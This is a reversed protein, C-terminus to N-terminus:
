ADLWILDDIQKCSIRSNEVNKWVVTGHVTKSALLQMSQEVIRNQVGIQAVRPSCFAVMPSCTEGFRGWLHLVKERGSCEAASGFGVQARGAAWFPGLKHKWQNLPRNPVSKQKIQVFITIKRLLNLQWRHLRMLMGLAKNTSTNGQLKKMKWASEQYEM